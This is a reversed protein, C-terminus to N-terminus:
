CSFNEVLQNFTIIIATSDAGSVILSFSSSKATCDWGGILGGGVATGDSNTSVFGGFRGPMSDVVIDGESSTSFTISPSMGSLLSLASAVSQQPQVDTSSPQWYLIVSAGNYSFTLLGQSDDPVSKTFGSVNLGTSEFDTYPDLKLAFGQAQYVTNLAPIATPVVTSQISVTSRPTRTPVTSVTDAQAVEAVPEVDSESQSTDGCGTLALALAGMLTILSIYRSNRSM